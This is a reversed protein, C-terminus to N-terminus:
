HFPNIEGDDIQSLSGRWLSTGFERRLDPVGHAGMSEQVKNIMSPRLGLHTIRNVVTAAYVTVHSRNTLVLAYEVDRVDRKLM